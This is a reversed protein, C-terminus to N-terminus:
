IGQILRVVIAVLALCAVVNVYGDQMGSVELLAGVSVASVIVWLM